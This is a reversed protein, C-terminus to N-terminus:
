PIHIATAGPFSLAQQSSSPSIPSTTEMSHCLWSLFYFQLGPPSFFMDSTSPLTQPTHQLNLCPAFFSRQSAAVPSSPWSFGPKPRWATCRGTHVLSSCPSWSGCARLLFTIHAGRFVHVRIGLYYKYYFKINSEFMEYHCKMWINDECGSTITTSGRHM